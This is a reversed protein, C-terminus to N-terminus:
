QASVFGRVTAHMATDVRHNGAYRTSPDRGVALDGADRSQRSLRSQHAVREMREGGEGVDGPLADYVGFALDANRSSATRSLSLQQLAFPNAEVLAAAYTQRGKL